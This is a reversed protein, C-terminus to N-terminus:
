RDISVGRATRIRWSPWLGNVGVETREQTGRTAQRTQRTLHQGEAEIRSTPVRLSKVSRSRSVDSSPLLCAFSHDAVCRVMLAFVPCFQSPM